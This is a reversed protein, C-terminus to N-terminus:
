VISNFSFINLINGFMTVEEASGDIADVMVDDAESVSLYREKRDMLAASDDGSSTAMMPPEDEEEETVSINREKYVGSAQMGSDIMDKATEEAVANLPLETQAFSSTLNGVSTTRSASGGVNTTVTGFESRDTTSASRSLSGAPHILLRILM